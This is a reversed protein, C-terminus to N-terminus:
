FPVQQALLGTGEARGSLTRCFEVADITLQEGVTGNGAVFTGGAPGTLVLTCPQGHRRSWEAVVDAVIRGDHAPTLVLARGTARAIDIRHMWPDRTLITDLLYGMRWTEARGGVEETMPVMRFLGPATTRWRAARPGNREARAILEEISLGANDAVQMATMADITPGGSVKAASTAARLRRILTRFSTFDSLMGVSHGAVDRVDWLSCDTPRAWDDAALSRLQDVLRAYETTALARAEARSIPAITEVDTVTMM